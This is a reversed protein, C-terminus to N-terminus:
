GRNCVFDYKNGSLTEVFLTYETDLWVEQDSDYTDYPAVEWRTIFEERPLLGHQKLTAEIAM